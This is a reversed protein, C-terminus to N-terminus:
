ASEAYSIPLLITNPQEETKRNKFYREKLSKRLQKFKGSFSYLRSNALTKNIEALEQSTLDQDFVNNDKFKTIYNIVRGLSKVPAVYSESYYDLNLVSSIVDRFADPNLEKTKISKSTVVLGHLHAQIKGNAIRPLEIVSAYGLIGYPKYFKSRLVQRLAKYLLNIQGHLESVPCSRLTIVLTLFHTKPLGLENVIQHLCARLQTLRKRACTPCFKEKCRWVHHRTNEVEGSLSNINQIYFAKTGCLAIRQAKNFLYVDQCAKIRKKRIEFM